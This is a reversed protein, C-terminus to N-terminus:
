AEQFEELYMRTLTKRDIKGNANHPLTDLFVVRQPVMFNPLRAKCHRLLAEESEKQNCGPVTHDDARAAAPTAIVLIAQGLAIHPVGIAAAETVMGSAYVAEEIETPSVRYGSTKIMDDKRSVFYLFSDEDKYVTDGSWVALQPTKIEPMYQPVPKFREKTKEEANWYGLAVLPGLHVLEGPENPACESGDERLVRLEANPIAKGMSTPRKDVQDPPLYSSRFAETLGYMLYPSANPFLKRLSELTAEPMAGGSNTFYRLTTGSGEPWKLKCLQAWLPPVAALGTIAHKEIAKAIDNPLLYDMIHCQAGVNFATTLQSLGYDFSFPLAALIKDQDTNELYESVSEAGVVMNRHSLVVGKPNGTSGSTYLISAVESDTAPGPNESENNVNHSSLNTFTQWDMVRIHGLQQINSEDLTIITHLDSCEQITESIQKLRQSQTVLIRINCDNAIYSVQPPKLLPNVPVFVGGAQIAGFFSAVTEFTKPLFVGVRESRKLGAFSFSRATHQVLQSLAKYTLTQNKQNSLAIHDPYKEATNHILSHLFTTM